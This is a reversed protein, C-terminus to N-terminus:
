RFVFRAGNDAADLRRWHLDGSTAGSFIYQMCLTCLIFASFDGDPLETLVECAVQFAASRKGDGTVTFGRTELNGLLLAAALRFDFGHSGAFSSSAM